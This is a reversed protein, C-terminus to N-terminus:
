PNESLYKHFKDLDLQFTLGDYIGGRIHRNGVFRNCERFGVKEACRVMRVNGSWTQLCIDRIGQDLFYQTWAALARTGYGQGWFRSEAIDIGLTHFVRKGQADKRSIWDYNEDILYQSVTGIHVGEATDVELSYPISPKPGHIFELLRKTEAEPDFSRIAEEMEWPADWLSWETEVTNWRIEDAIDSEKMERLVIDRYCIEKYLPYVMSLSDPTAPDTYGSDRFGAKEYVHIAAANAKKVCVEVRPFKGERRCHALILALAQQGCGKGQFRQDILFECLHYCAPDEALDHILALGVIEDNEYMGLCLANQGRYAYARALILPASQVFNQQEPAMCLAAAELWNTEDIPRLTIM